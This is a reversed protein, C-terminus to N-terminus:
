PDARSPETSPKDILVDTHAALTVADSQNSADGSVSADSSTPFYLPGDLAVLFRAAANDRWFAHGCQNIFFSSVRPSTRSVEDLAALLKDANPGNAYVKGGRVRKQVVGGRALGYTLREAPQLPGPYPDGPALTASDPCGRSNDTGQADDFAFPKSLFGGFRTRWGEGDPVLVLIARRRPTIKFRGVGGKLRQLLDVMGQADRAFSGDADTVNGATDCSFEEGEYGGPYTDGVTLAGFDIQSENPAPVRPAADQPVPQEPPDWHFYRNREAGTLRSWDAKAYILDDTSDRVYLMCIRAPKDEGSATRHKRLVRGISQIRQRPSSSSAVVIGLDAAPVDFGEILARASVIVKATGGRFLEVSADRLSAPLDSHEMVAPMGEATLLEFLATVEDISEHFLIVRSDDRAAFADRILSLTATRRSEAGYLLRKRESTLGVFSAALTGVEDRRRAATTRCWQLFKEGGGARRAGPQERLRRRLDTLRGSLEEYRTREEATLPLGFHHVEFPPLIGLRVADAVTLEYVTGGLERGVPSSDYDDNMDRGDDDTADSREPTASLGLAYRRPTSLVARQEPAGARHCEDVVLLLHDGVGSEAAAGALLKHASALVAILVRRDGDFSDGHGGGMRGIAEAPLTSHTLLTEYWQRLLVITPVVIAVRLEPDLTRQLQEAIALALVTKGAGTVVKMTGRCERAFWAERAAVQWEHLTLGTTLTWPRALDRVVEPRPAPLSEDADPQASREDLWELLRLQQLRLHDAASLRTM